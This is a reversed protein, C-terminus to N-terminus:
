EYIFTAGYGGDVSTTTGSALEVIAIRRAVPWPTVLMLQGTDDLRAMGYPVRTILEGSARFCLIEPYSAPGRNLPWQYTVVLTKRDATVLLSPIWGPDTMAPLTAITKCVGTACACSQVSTLAIKFAVEEPRGFCSSDPGSWTTVGHSAFDLEFMEPPPPNTGYMQRSWLAKTGAPNVAHLTEISSKPLDPGVHTITGRWDVTWLLANYDGWSTGFVAGDNVVAYLFLSVGTTPIQTSTSAVDSGGALDLIHPLSASTSNGPVFV